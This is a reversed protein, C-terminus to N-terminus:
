GGLWFETTLSGNDTTPLFTQLATFGTTSGPTCGFWTFRPISAISAAVLVLATDVAVGVPSLLTAVGTACCFASDCGFGTRARVSSLHFINEPVALSPRARNIQSNRPNGSPCAHM